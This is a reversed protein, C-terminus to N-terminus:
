DSGHLWRTHFNLLVDIYNVSENAAQIAGKVSELGQKVDRGLGTEVDKRATSAYPTSRSYAALVLQSTCLSATQELTSVWFSLMTKDTDNRRRLITEVLYTALDLLTGTSSPSTPTTSITSSIIAHGLSWESPETCLVQSGRSIEWLSSVISACCSTLISRVREEEKEEGKIKSGVLLATLERPHQLLHVFKQLQVSVKDIFDQFLSRVNETNSGNSSQEQLYGIKAQIVHLYLKLVLDVEELQNLRIGEIQNAEGRRGNLLAGRTSFHVELSQNLKREYVKFFSWAEMQMFRQGVPGSLNGLLAVVIQLMQLWCTHTPNEYSTNALRPPIAEDSSDMISSLSNNNLGNIIDALVLLESTSQQSALHFFFTLLSSSYVPTAGSALIDQASDLGIVHQALPSRSFLDVMASLLSTTQLRPAWVHPSVGSTPSLLVSLVSTFLNLDEEAEARWEDRKEDKISLCAWANDIVARLCSITQLTLTEASQQLSRLLNAKGQNRASQNALDQHVHCYRRVSLYVMEFVPRPYSSRSRVADEVRFVSHTLIQELQDMVDRLQEDGEISGESGSWSLKLLVTLLEIRETHIGITVQSEIDESSTIKACDIWASLSAKKLAVSSQSDRAKNNLVPGMMAKLLATWAQLYSSQADVISWNLNLGAVLLVAQQLAALQSEEGEMEEDVSPAFGQLKRQLLDVDYLYSDGFVRSYDFDDRRPTMLFDDLSMEPFTQMLRAFVDEQMLADCPFSLANRLRTTLGEAQSVLSMVRDFALGRNGSKSGTALLPALTIDSTLLELARASCRRKFAYRCVADSAESKSRMEDLGDIIISEMSTPPLQPLDDTQAQALQAVATWFDKDERLTIFVDQHELAHKFAANLFKLAGELVDPAEESKFSRNWGLVAAKAIEIASQTMTSPLSTDSTTGLSALHKEVSKALHRGTLLLTALAPQMDVLAALLNWTQIALEQQGTPDGRVVDLLGNILKEVDQLSGLHGILTPAMTSQLNATARCMCTLLKVAEINIAYSYPLLTLSAINKVLNGTSSPVSSQNFIVSELAGLSEYSGDFAQRNLITLAFRLSAQLQKKALEMDIQRMGRQLSTIFRQGYSITRLLPTFVLSPSASSLFTAGVLEVLRAAIPSSRLGEDRCIQNFFSVCRRGLDVQQRTSIYKWNQYDMWIYHITFHAARGMVEVKLQLAETSSSYQTKQLDQLLATHLDLLALSGSFNGTSIEHSLLSTSSNRFGSRQSSFPLSGSSGILANSSRMAQWIAASASPILLRLLRLCALIVRSASTPNALSQDLLRLTIDILSAKPLLATPQSPEPMGADEGDLHSLLTASLYRGGDLVTCLLELADAAVDGDYGTGVEPSLAAFSAVPDKDRFIASEDAESDRGATKWLSTTDLLGVFSALVDRLLRWASYGAGELEWMIVIPAQDPQSVMQGFTGAPVVLHKGFVPIDRIAKYTTGSISEVPEYPLSLSPSAPMVQSLTTLQALYGLVATCARLSHDDPESSEGSLAQCLGLLPCFSAPFRRTVMNLVARREGNGHDFDSEWFQACLAAVSDAGGRGIKISDSAHLTFTNRWLTILGAPDSTYEPRILYTISLVLGKFVARLALSSSVALSFLNSVPTDTRFLPSTVIANLTGFIDLAPNFAANVLDPWLVGVGGRKALAANLGELQDPYPETSRAEQWENMAEDIRSLLLAFSLLLPARLVDTQTSTLLYDAINGVIEPADILQRSLVDQSVERNTSHLDLGEMCKELELSEVSLIVLFSGISDVLHTAEPDFFGSCAQEKGFDTEKIVSFISKVVEATTDLRSYFLLFVVELLALQERLAHKSWFVSYRPVERVQDLLEEQCLHKFHSLCNLAFAQDAFQDLTERAIDNFDHYSDGAIRILTSICHLIYLKEEFYFATFADFFKTTIDESSAGGAQARKKRGSARQQLPNVFAESSSSLLDLNTDDSDFFIRLVVAVDAEEIQHLQSIAKHLAKQQEDLPPAASAKGKGSISTSPYGKGCARFIPVVSNLQNRIAEKSSEIGAELDHCLERFSKLHERDTIARSPNRSVVASV